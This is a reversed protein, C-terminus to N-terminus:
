ADEWYEKAYKEKPLEAKIRPDFADWARKAEAPLDAYTKSGKRHGSPNESGTDVAAHGNAATTPFKAKYEPSAKIKAETQKLNEEYPMQEGNKDFYAKAIRRSISEAATTLTIDEGYWPNRSVFEEEADKDDKTAAEPANARKDALEDSIRAVEEADGDAVAKKRAATLDSIEQKHQKTLREVNAKNTKELRALRDDFKAEAKELLKRVYPPIDEVFEQATKFKAPKREGKFEEEPVWGMERAETEWDRNDQSSVPAEHAGEETVTGSEAAETGTL